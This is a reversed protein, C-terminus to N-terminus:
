APIAVEMQNAAVFYPPRIGYNSMQFDGVAHPLPVGRVLQGNKSVSWDNEIVDVGWEMVRGWGQGAFKGLHTIVKLLTEIEAARGVCYWTIENAVYYFVPMHKVKYPGGMIPVVGRRGRFDIMGAYQTDFKKNWSDRGEAVWWPQPQAWSCAYYFGDAMERGDYWDMKGFPIRQLPLEIPNTAFDSGSHLSEPPGYKDRYCHYYLIGDLPIWRDCVISNRLRATIRLSDM